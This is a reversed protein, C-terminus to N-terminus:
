LGEKNDLLTPHEWINGIIEIESPVIVHEGYMHFFMPLEPIEGVREDGNSNIFRYLEHEFIEKGNKDKLGTYQMLVVGKPVNSYTISPNKGGNWEGELEWSFPPNVSAYWKETRTDWARFKIERKM